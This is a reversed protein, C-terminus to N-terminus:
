STHLHHTSNTNLLTATYPQLARQLAPPIRVPTLASGTRQMCAVVQEGRAVVTEGEGGLRRYEFGLTLRNQATSVLHMRIAVEDFARLEALYECSVSVTM